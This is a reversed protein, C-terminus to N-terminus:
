CAQRTYPLIEKVKGPIDCISVSSVQHKLHAGVDYLCIDFFIYANLAITIIGKEGDRSFRMKILIEDKDEQFSRRDIGYDFLHFKRFEASLYTYFLSM